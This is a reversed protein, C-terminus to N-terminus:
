STLERLKAYADRRTPLYIGVESAIPAGTLGMADADGRRQEDFEAQSTAIHTADGTFYVNVVRAPVGLNEFFCLHALRNARQYCHSDIWVDLDADTAGFHHRTADLADSIQQRNALGQDTGSSGSACAPGDAIEPVNAKAEVLIVTGDEAAIGLADWRPGSAPWWEQLEDGLGARDVAALFDRDKFEVFRQAAVPSRWDISAGPGLIAEALTSPECNVYYAIHLASGRLPIGYEDTTSPM